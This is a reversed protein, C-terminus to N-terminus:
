DITYHEGHPVPPRLRQPTNLASYVPPPAVLHKQETRFVFLDNFQQCGALLTTVSLLSVILYSFRV